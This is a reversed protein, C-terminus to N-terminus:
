RPRRPWHSLIHKAKQNEDAERTTNGTRVDCVTKEVLKAKVDVTVTADV